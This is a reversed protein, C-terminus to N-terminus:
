SRKQINNLKNIEKRKMLVDMSLIGCILFIGFYLYNIFIFLYPFEIIFNSLLSQITIILETM